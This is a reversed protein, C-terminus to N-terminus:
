KSAEKLCHTLCTTCMCKGVSGYSGNHSIGNTMTGIRAIRGFCSETTFNVDYSANWGDYHIRFRNGTKEIITSVYWDGCNDKVEIKDNVKIGIKSILMIDENAKIGIKSILMIDENSSSLPTSIPNTKIIDTVNVSSLQQPENIIQPSRTPETKQYISHM